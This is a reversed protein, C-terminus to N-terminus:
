EPKKIYFMCISVTKNGDTKQCRVTKNNNTFSIQLIKNVDSLDINQIYEKTMM